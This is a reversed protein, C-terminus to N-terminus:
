KERERSSWFGDIKVAKQNHLILVKGKFPPPLLFPLDLASSPVFLMLKLLAAMRGVVRFGNKLAAPGIVEQRRRGDLIQILDAGKREKL